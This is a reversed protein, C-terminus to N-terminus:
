MTYIVTTDEYIDRRSRYIHDNFTILEHGKWMIIFKLYCKVKLGGNLM